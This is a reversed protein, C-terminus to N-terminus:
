FLSAASDAWRFAKSASGWFTATPSRDPIAPGANGDSGVVEVKVAVTGGGAM